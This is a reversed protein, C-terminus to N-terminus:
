YGCKLIFFKDVSYIPINNLRLRFFLTALNTGYLYTPTISADSIWEVLISQSESINFIILINNGLM